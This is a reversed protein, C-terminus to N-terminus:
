ADSLRVKEGHINNTTRIEAPMRFLHKITTGAYMCSVISFELHFLRTARLLHAFACQATLFRLPGSLKATMARSSRAIWYGGSDVDIPLAGALDIVCPNGSQGTL